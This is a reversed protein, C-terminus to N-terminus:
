LFFLTNLPLLLTSCNGSVRDFVFVSVTVNVWQCFGLTLLWHERSLPSVLPKTQERVFEPGPLTAFWTPMFVCSPSPSLPCLTNPPPTITSSIGRHPLMYHSVRPLLHLSSARPPQAATISWPPCAASPSARCRIITTSGIIQKLILGM